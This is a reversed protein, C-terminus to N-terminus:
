AAQWSSQHGGTIGSAIFFFFPVSRLPVEQKRVHFWAPSFRRAVAKKAHVRPPSCVHRPRARTSSPSSLFFVCEANNLAAGHKLILVCFAFHLWSCCVVGSSTIKARVCLCKHRVSLCVSEYEIPPPATQVPEVVMLWLQIVSFYVHSLFAVPQLLYSRVSVDLIM